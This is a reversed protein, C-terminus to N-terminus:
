DGGKQQNEIYRRITDESISGITEIYFSSNWLHGGWLKQKLHPFKIFCKRASIGKLMKVIYSPALKPHASAFVHVYDKEGM